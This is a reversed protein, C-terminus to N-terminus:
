FLKGQNDPKFDHFEVQADTKESFWMEVIGYRVEVKAGFYKRCDACRLLVQESQFSFFSIQRSHCHPCDIILKYIM